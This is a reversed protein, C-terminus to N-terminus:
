YTIYIIFDFDRMEFKRTCVKVKLKRTKPVLNKCFKNLVDISM